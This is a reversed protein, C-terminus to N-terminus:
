GQQSCLAAAQRRADELSKHVLERTRCFSILEELTKLHELRKEEEAKRQDLIQNVEKALDERTIYNKRKLRM